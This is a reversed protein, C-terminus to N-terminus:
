LRWPEGEELAESVLDSDFMQLDTAVFECLYEQRFWPDGLQRKEMELRSAPIRPCETAPVRFRMWEAGGHEWQEYFFGRKGFPTSLLWVDGNAVTLMPRLAKYLEDSVRAAEDVILLSVASFGRITGENGPLGVIRSGNPLRV